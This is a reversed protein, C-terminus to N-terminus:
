VDLVVQAIWHVGDKKLFFDNYTVAKVNLSIQYNSAYDGIIKAILSNDKEDIRIKIKSLFVNKSDLMILLKELFAHFLSELNKERIKLELSKKEAIKKSSMTKFMALASNEFVENLSKGYAQFKIDATHKLFKYKM